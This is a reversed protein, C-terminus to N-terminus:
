SLRIIWFMIEAFNLMFYVFIKKPFVIQIYKIIIQSLYECAPHSQVRSCKKMWSWFTQINDISDNSLRIEKKLRPITPPGAM